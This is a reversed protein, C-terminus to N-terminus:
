ADGPARARRESFGDGQEILEIRNGFPDATYCRRVDPLSQDEVVPVGEAVLRQRVTALDRVLFAPHAKCRPTFDQEVGLHLVTGAAEFWCGGRAVLAAPKEVETMGLAGAYFRRAEAEGGPPIAIQLHDLGTITM